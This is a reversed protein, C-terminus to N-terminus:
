KIAMLYIDETNVESNNRWGCLFRDYWTSLKQYNDQRQFLSPQGNCGGAVVKGKGRKDGLDKM